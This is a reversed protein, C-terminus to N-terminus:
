LVRSCALIGLTILQTIINLYTSTMYLGLMLTLVVCTDKVCEMVMETHTVNGNPM